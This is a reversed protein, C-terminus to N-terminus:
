GDLAGTSETGAVPRHAATSGHLELENLEGERFDAFVRSCLRQLARVTARGQPIVTAGEEDSVLVEYTSGDHYDLLVAHFYPNGHLVTCTVSPMKRLAKAFLTIQEPTSLVPYGFEIRFPRTTYQNAPRRARDKLFNFWEQAMAAAPGVFADFAPLASRQFTFVSYRGLRARAKRGPRSTQPYEVGVDTVWQGADVADSFAERVSLDTWKRDREVAKRAGASAIRARYGLQTVRVNAHPDDAFHMRVSTQLGEVLAQLQPTRLIPATPRPIASRMLWRFPRTLFDTTADTVVVWVLPLDPHRLAAFRGEITEAPRRGFKGWVRGATADPTVFNPEFRGRESGPATHLVRALSPESVLLKVRLERVGSQLVEELVRGLTRFELPRQYLLSDAVFSLQEDPPV